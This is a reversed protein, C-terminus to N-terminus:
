EDSSSFLEEVAKKAEPLHKFFVYFRFRERLTGTKVAIGAGLVNKRVFPINRRKLVDELMGGFLTDKETLFCLDEPEACRANKKGCVPCCEGNFPLRCTDCYWAM